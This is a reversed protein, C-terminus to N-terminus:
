QISPIYITFDDVTTTSGQNALGQTPKSNTFSSSDAGSGSGGLALSEDSSSTAVFDYVETSREAWIGKKVAVSARGVGDPTGWQVFDAMNEPDTYDSDTIYLALDSENQLDTWSRLVVIEGPDLKLDGQLIEMDALAAYDFRACLFWESIDIPQSGSNRLEIWDSKADGQYYVENIVVDEPEAPEPTTSPEPTPSADPTTTAAPTTTVTTTPTVTPGPTPTMPDVSNPSSDQTCLAGACLKPEGPNGVAGAAPQGVISQMVVQGNTVSGGGSTISWPSITEGQALAVGVLLTLICFVTLLSSIILRRRRNLEHKNM